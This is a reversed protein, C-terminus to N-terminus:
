ILYLQCHGVRVHPFGVSGDAYCHKVESNSISEPPVM